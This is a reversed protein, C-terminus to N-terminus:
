HERTTYGTYCYDGATNMQRGYHIVWSYWTRYIKVVRTTYGTVYTIKNSHDESLRLLKGLEAANQLRVTGQLLLLMNYEELLGLPKGLEVAKQPSLTSPYHVRYCRYNYHQQRGTHREGTRSCKTSKSYPPLPVTYCWYNYQRMRLRSSTSCLGVYLHKLTSHGIASIVVHVTIRSYISRM